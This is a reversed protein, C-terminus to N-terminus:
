TGQIRALLLEAVVAVGDGIQVVDIVGPMAKAKSADFSKPKGGIVPTQEISAYVMGPVKADIGFQATGNVKSPTDLRQIPKGVVKFQSPDKLKVDKPVPVSAAAAALEGYTASKGGGSVVGNDATLTSADVGWKNAAAQVLMTRVQAGGIRLKEWADRIATSGGTIQAGLL